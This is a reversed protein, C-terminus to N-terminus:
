AAIEAGVAWCSISLRRSEAAIINNGANKFFLPQFIYFHIARLVIWNDQYCIIETKLFM